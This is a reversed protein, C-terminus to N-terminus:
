AETAQGAVRMIQPLAGDGHEAVRAGGLFAVACGVDVATTLLERHVARPPHLPHRDGRVRRAIVGVQLLMGEAEGERSVAPGGADEVGDDVAADGDDDLARGSAQGDGARKGGARCWRDDGRERCGDRGEAEGGKRRRRGDADEGGGGALGVRGLGM